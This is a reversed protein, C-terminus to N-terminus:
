SRNTVLKYSCAQGFATILDKADSKIKAAVIETPPKVIDSQRPVRIGIVDPTGWKDKFRNGGLAIAKTSEELEKVLWDAFPRYFEEESVRLEVPPIM